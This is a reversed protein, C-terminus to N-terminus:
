NEYKYYKGDKLAVFFTLAKSTNRSFSNDFCLCYTGEEQVRYSGKITTSASNYHEIPLIEKLDPDKIIQASVSKKRGRNFVPSTPQLSPVSTSDQLTAGIEANNEGPTEENDDTDNTDISTRSVGSAVSHLSTRSKTTSLTPPVNNQSLSIPSLHGGELPALVETNSNTKPAAIFVNRASVAPGKRQYLGFSINKKKTSFWWLITQGKQVNIYHIFVDRPAVEVEQM